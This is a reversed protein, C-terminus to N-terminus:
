AEVESDNNTDLHNGYFDELIRRRTELRLSLDPSEWNILTWYFENWDLSGGNRGLTVLIPRISAAFQAIDTNQWSTMRREISASSIGGARSLGALAEGLRIGKSDRVRSYALLSAFKLIPDKKYPAKNWFQALYPYAYHEMSKIGARRLAAASSGSRLLMAIRSVVYNEEM